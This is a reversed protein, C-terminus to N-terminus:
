RHLKMLFNRERISQKEFVLCAEFQEFLEQIIPENNIKAIGNLYEAESCYMSIEMWMTEDDISNLYMVDCSLYQNYIQAVKEQIELFFVEKDKKIHYEYIKIFLIERRESLM